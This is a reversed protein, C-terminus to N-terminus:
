NNFPCTIQHYDLVILFHYFDFIIGVMKAIKAVKETNRKELIRDAIESAKSKTDGNTTETTNNATTSTTATAPKKSTKAM